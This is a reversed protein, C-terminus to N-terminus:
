RLGFNERFAKYHSDIDGIKERLAALDLLTQSYLGKFFSELQDSLAKHHIAIDAYRALEAAPDNACVGELDNNGQYWRRFQQVDVPPLAAFLGHIREVHSYFFDAGKSDDYFFAEMLQRLEAYADFLHLGFPGNTPAKCWVEHFIFDIFSQMKDMQHPVFTYPFLM